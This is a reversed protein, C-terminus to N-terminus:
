WWRSRRPAPAMAMPEPQGRPALLELYRLEAPLEWDKGRPPPALSFALWGLRRGALRDVILPCELRDRWAHDLGAALLAIQRAREDFAKADTAALLEAQARVYEAHLDHGREELWDAYIPRASPDGDGIAHLLEAEIPDPIGHDISALSTVAARGRM